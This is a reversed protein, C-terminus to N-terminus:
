DLYHIRNKIDVIIQHADQILSLGKQLDDRLRVLKDASIEKGKDLHIIEEISINEKTKKVNNSAEKLAVEANDLLSNFLRIEKRRGNIEVLEEAV